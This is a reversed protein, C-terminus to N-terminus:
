RLKEMLSELPFAEDSEWVSKRVRIEAKGVEGELEIGPSTDDLDNTLVTEQGRIYECM